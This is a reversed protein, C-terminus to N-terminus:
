RRFIAPCINFILSYKTNRAMNRGLDTREKEPVCVFDGRLTGPAEPHDALPSSILLENRKQRINTYGWGARKYLTNASKEKKHYIFSLSVSFWCGPVLVSLIRRYFVAIFSLLHLRIRARMPTTRSVPMYRIVRTNANTSGVAPFSQSFAEITHVIKTGTKM